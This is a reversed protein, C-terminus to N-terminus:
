TFSASVETKDPEQIVTLVRGQKIAKTLAPNEQPKTWLTVAQPRGSDQVLDAFRM